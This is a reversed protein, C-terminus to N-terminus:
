FKLKSKATTDRLKFFEVSYSFPRISNHTLIHKCIFFFIIPEKCQEAMQLSLRSRAAIHIFAYGLLESLLKM